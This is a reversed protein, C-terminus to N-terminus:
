CVGDGGSLNNNTHYLVVSSIVVVSFVFSLNFDPHLEHSNIAFYRGFSIPHLLTNESNFMINYQKIHNVSVHNM